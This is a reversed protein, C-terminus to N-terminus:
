SFYEEEQKVKKKNKLQENRYYKALADLPNIEKLIM